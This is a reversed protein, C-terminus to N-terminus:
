NRLIKFFIGRELTMSLLSLTWVLNLSQLITLNVQIEDDGKLGVKKEFSISFVITVPKKELAFAERFADPQMVAVLTQM